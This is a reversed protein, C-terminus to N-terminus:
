KVDIGYVVSLSEKTGAFTNFGTRDAEDYLAISTQVEDSGESGAPASMTVSSSYVKGNSVVPEQHLWQLAGNFDLRKRFTEVLIDVLYVSTARHNDVSVSHQSTAGAQMDCPNASTSVDLDTLAGAESCHKPM